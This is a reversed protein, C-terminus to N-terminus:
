RAFYFKLCLDQNLPYVILDFEFDQIKKQFSSQSAM